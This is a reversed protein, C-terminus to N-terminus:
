GHARRCLLCSELAITELEFWLIMGKEQLAVNECVDALGKGKSLLALVGRRWLLLHSVLNTM